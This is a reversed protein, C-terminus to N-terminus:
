KVGLGDMCGDIFDSQDFKQNDGLLQNLKLAGECAGQAGGGLRYTTAAFGGNGADYGARYSREDRFGHTAVATVILGFGVVAVVATVILGVLLGMSMPAKPRVNHPAPGPRGYSWPNGVSGRHHEPQHWGPYVPRSHGSWGAGDWYAETNANNPDPYWGQAANWPQM